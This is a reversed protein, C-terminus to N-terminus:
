KPSRQNPKPEKRRDRHTEYHHHSAPDRLLQAASTTLLHQRRNGGSDRRHRQRLAGHHLVNREVIQPSRQHRVEHHPKLLGLIRPPPHRNSRREPQAHLRPVGH